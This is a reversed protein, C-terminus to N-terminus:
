HFLACFQTFVANFRRDQQEGFRARIFHYFDSGVTQAGGDIGGFAYGCQRCDLACGGLRQAHMELYVCAHMPYAHRWGFGLM